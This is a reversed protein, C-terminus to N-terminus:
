NPMIKEYIPMNQFKLDPLGTIGYLHLFMSVIDSMLVVIPFAINDAVASWLNGQFLIHQPHQWLIDKGQFIYEQFSPAQTFIGSIALM